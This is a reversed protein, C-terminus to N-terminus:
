EEATAMPGFPTGAGQAEETMSPHHRDGHTVQQRHRWHDGLSITFWSMGSGPGDRPNCVSVTDGVEAWVENEICTRGSPDCSLLLRASMPVRLLIRLAGPKM